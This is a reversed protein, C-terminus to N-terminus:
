LNLRKGTLKKFIDELTPENSHIKLIKGEKLYHCIDDADKQADLNLHRHDTLEIHLALHNHYKEIIDDIRGEEIMSGEHLLGIRDCLLAAEQMNHTTLFISVQQQKLTLLLHHILHRSVPDLASTPEDLFLLRPRHLLARALVLRQRMGKSLRCAKKDAEDLLDVKKLVETIREDEIRHIDAFIKLNDYVSMREYLGQEDLVLGTKEYVRASLHRSDEGFVLCRGQDIDLQGIMIRVLTTKGAGSPGLCGFCEGEELSLRLDKLIINNQFAKQLHEIQIVKM